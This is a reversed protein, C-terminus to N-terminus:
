LKLLSQLFFFAVIVFRSIMEINFVTCEVFNSFMKNSYWCKLSRKDYVGGVVFLCIFDVFVSVNLKGLSFIM